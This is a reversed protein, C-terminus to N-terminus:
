LISQRDVFVRIFLRQLVETSASLLESVLGNLRRLKTYIENLRWATGPQRVRTLRLAERRLQRVEVDIHARLREQMVMPTPLNALAHDRPSPDQTGGTGAQAQGGGTWQEGVRAGTSESVREASAVAALIAELHRPQTVV